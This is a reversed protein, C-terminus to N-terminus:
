SLHVCAYISSVMPWSFVLRLLSGALTPRERYPQRLVLTASVKLMIFCQKKITQTSREPNRSDPVSTRAKPRAHQSHCEERLQGNGQEVDTYNGQCGQQFTCKEINFPLFFSCLHTILILLLKGFKKLRTSILVM